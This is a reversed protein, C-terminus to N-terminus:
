RGLWSRIKTRWRPECDGALIAGVPTRQRHEMEDPFDACHRLYGLTESVMHGHLHGDVEWWTRSPPADM